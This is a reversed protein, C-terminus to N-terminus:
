FAPPREIIGRQIRKVCIRPWRRKLDAGCALYSIAKRRCLCLESACRLLKEAEPDLELSVTM